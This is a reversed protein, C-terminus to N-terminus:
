WSSLDLKLKWFVSYTQQFPRSIIKNSSIIKDELYCFKQLNYYHKPSPVNVFKLNSPLTALLTLPGNKRPHPPPLIGCLKRKSLEGRFLM